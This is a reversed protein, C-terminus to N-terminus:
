SCIKTYWMAFLYICIAEDTKLSGCGKIYEAVDNKEWDYTYFSIKRIPEKPVLYIKEDVKDDEDLNIEKVVNLNATKDSDHEVFFSESLFMEAKKIAYIKGVIYMLFVLLTTLSSILGIISVINMKSIEESIKNIIQNTDLRGLIFGAVFVIIFGFIQKM